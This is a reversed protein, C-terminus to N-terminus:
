NASSFEEGLWRQFAAMNQPRGLFNKVLDNASMSGGPELVTRRYRMPTDGILPNTHDFQDFFDEAIVWDYLYMYFGPSYEPLRLHDFSAYQHGDSPVMAVGAGYRTADQMTVADLDINRPAGEHVDYAIATDILRDFATRLGRGFAFARRMRRVLEAPIVEGTQYHHAFSALVEPNEMFRELMQSPAEEFDSEMSVGSIGAWRQQGGLIQHMVHGFEHFADRVDDFEMLGPDTATPAPFNGVLIGEPLQKGRVGDLVEETSLHTYKGPRPHMDLYFRGIMKGNEIVAWTEVSPDWAPAELERRFRVHFLTAATDLIGQKVASYPLYPRISQSDFAFQARRVRESLHYFEYSMIETAEPDQKRKEALMMAYEREAIPRVNAEIEEIFRAINRGNRIMKDATNYEAWSSYGMLRAVEYRAQLIDKLVERNKPYARSQFADWMDRLLKKSSAFDIIPYADPYATTIRIIGDAGPKHGDIYDQPLGDLESVDKFEIARVDDSINREFESQDHALRDNLRKLRMRAAADKEVGALRMELLQRQIYYHTAADANSTDISALAYYVKQNLSLVTMAGSVRTLMEAAHNRYSEDPHTMRVLRAFYLAAHLQRIADDFPALTNDVTRLGKVAIMQDIAGQAAALRAMELREFAAIDPKTSWVPPQNIEPEQALITRSLLFLPILCASSLLIRMTM